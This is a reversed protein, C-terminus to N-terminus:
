DCQHHLNYLYINAHAMFKTIDVIYITYVDVIYMYASTCVEYIILNTGPGPNTEVDGAIILLQKRRVATVLSPSLDGM